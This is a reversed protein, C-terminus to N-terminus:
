TKFRQFPVEPIYKLIFSTKEVLREYVKPKRDSAWGCASVFQCRCKDIQEREKESAEKKMDPDESNGSFRKPKKRIQIFGNEISHSFLTDRVQQEDNKKQM